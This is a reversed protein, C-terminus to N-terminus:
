AADRRSFVVVSAALSVAAVLGYLWWTSPEVSGGDLVVGPQWKSVLNVPGFFDAIDSVNSV